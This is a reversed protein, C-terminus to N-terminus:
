GVRNAPVANLPAVNSKEDGMIHARVNDGHHVAVVNRQRAPTLVQEDTLVNFGVIILSIERGEIRDARCVVRLQPVPAERKLQDRLPVVAGLRPLAYVRVDLSVEPVAIRINVRNTTHLMCRVAVEIRCRKWDRGILHRREIGLISKESATHEPIIKKGGLDPAHIIDPSGVVSLGNAVADDIPRRRNELVAIGMVGDDIHLLFIESVFMVQADNLLQGLGGLRQQSIQRIARYVRTLKIPPVEISSRERTVSRKTSVRAWATVLRTISSQRVLTAKPSM